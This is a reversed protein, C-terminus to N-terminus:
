LVKFIFKLGFLLLLVGGVIILQLKFRNPNLGQISGASAGLNNNKITEKEKKVIKVDVESKTKTINNQHKDKTINKIDVIKLNEIKSVINIPLINKAIVVSGSSHPGESKEEKKNDHLDESQSPDTPKIISEFIGDGEEDISLDSMGFTSRSVEAKMNSNTSIDVFSVMGSPVDGLLTEEELTFIGDALGKMKIKYDGDKPVVITKEDGIQLYLSNPIQEEIEMFDPDSNSVLGTHRGEKDYIDISVPSKMRYVLNDVSEPKAVTTYLPLETNNKMINQILSIVSDVEFIDAHDRYPPIVKRKNFINVDVYYDRGNELSASPSVVTKDGDSTFNIKETLVDIKQCKLGITFLCQHKSSYEINKITPLGWGVIQYREINEPFVLDDIDGHLKESKDFILKNLINPHTLDDVGPKSRNDNNNALLFDKFKEFNDIKDGYISRFNNVKDVLPNFLIVPERIKDFYKESPILGYAGLLNEGFERAVEQRLAFGWLLDQNTGHLLGAVSSPTGIAPPAVNIVKDIYDILDSEGSAKMKMLKNILARSVLGGNSHTVITVKGNISSDVLKQLQDIMYPLKGEPIQDTYSIRGDLDEVGKEVIDDVSMRWDYPVATWDGMEGKEVLDTLSNTFSKYINSGLSGHLLVNAENIIDKTYIDPNLSNGSTNTYLDKVDASNNPEWLQDETTIGLVKKEKYLRSGEFGPIFMVNSLGTAGPKIKLWPTFIVNDSVKDGKGGQNTALNKPGTKDGWYNDKLDLLSDDYSNSVALTNGHFINNSGKINAQEGYIGIDNGFIENNNIEFLYEKDGGGYSSIGMQEFGYKNPTIGSLLIASIKSNSISLSGPHDILKSVKLNLDGGGSLSMSMLVPVYKSSYGLICTKRCEFVSDVVTVKTNSKIGLGEAVDIIKSNKMTLISERDSVVIGDGYDYGDNASVEVNDMSMYSGGNIDISYGSGGNRIIRSNRIDLTSADYLSVIWAEYNNILSNNITVNSKNYLDIRPVSLKDFTGYSNNIMIQQDTNFGDSSFRTNKLSLGYYSYRSVINNLINDTSISDITVGQWDGSEAITMSEDINTDGGITDDKSSTFNIKEQETGEAKLTGYVKIEAGNEFKVITGPEITLIGGIVVTIPTTVVYPSKDKTWTVNETIDTDITTSAEIKYVFFGNVLIAVAVFIFLFYKADFREISLLSYMNWQKM